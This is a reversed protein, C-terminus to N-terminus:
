EATLSNNIMRYKYDQVFAKLFRMDRSDEASDDAEAGKLITLGDDTLMQYPGNNFTFVWEGSEPDLLDKGFAIYDSESGLLGLLTPMIDIQQARRPMIGRPLRGSPDFIMIPIRFRGLADSYEPRESFNTHDATFVFITNDYWSQKSASEFFRKLSYDTYSICTYMPHGPREFTNKYREPVHYPHHSSATFVASFFPEPMENLHLVMHQLYEEDWIAWLGDYDALGNFRSDAVYDELDYLEQMGLASAVADLGMTGPSGGHFFSTHYGQESLELPLAHFKNLTFPTMYLHEDVHPISALVSPLVDVSRDGNAFSESFSLSVSRLSDVFPTYCQYDNYAGVYEQAFSEVILIVVNPKDEGKWTGASAKHYACYLSDKEQESMYAAPVFRTNGLNRLIAFPTSVIAAAHAPENVYKMAYGINIPRTKRVWSGRYGAVLLPLSILFMLTAGGYRLATTKADPGKKIGESKRYLFHLGIIMAAAIVLLYWHRGVEIACIRLIDGAGENGFAKLSNITTRNGSFPFYLADGFNAIIALSNVVMYYWKCMSQYWKKGTFPAPLLMLLIYIALSYCIVSTDFLLSCSFASWLDLNELGESMADWNLAVYVIRCIFYTCYTLLVNWLCRLTNM